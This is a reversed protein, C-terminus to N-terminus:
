SAKYAQAFEQAFDELKRGNALPQHGAYYDEQIKGDRIGKGMQVYLGALSPQLGSQLMADNSQEDSFTVWNTGEKGVANGLVNAIDAAYREDSVIYEITHGEFVPNALHHIARDAIDLHHALAIKEKDDGFNSGVISANKLLGVMTYLNYFFYSPRLLKVHKDTFVQLQEELYGLADIPGAGQRLHAGISSLVVIHKASSSKLASVFNDAITKQYAPFDEVAYNPPIMLYVVDADKFTTTVFAEDTLAGTAAKAGLAEIAAAREAQSTVVTVDHGATALAIVIPQSINGLSGTIVYKM